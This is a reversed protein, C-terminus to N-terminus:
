GETGHDPVNLTALCHTQDGGKLMNSVYDHEITANIYALDQVVTGIRQHRTWKERRAYEHISRIANIHLGFAKDSQTSVLKATKRCVHSIHPLMM